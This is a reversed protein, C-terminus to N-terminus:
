IASATLLSSSTSLIPSIEETGSTTVELNFCVFLVFCGSVAPNWCIQLSEKQSVGEGRKEEVEREHM